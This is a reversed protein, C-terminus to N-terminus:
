TGPSEPKLPVLSAGNLLLLYADFLHQYTDPTMDLRLLEGKRSTIFAYGDFSDSLIVGPGKPKRVPGKSM